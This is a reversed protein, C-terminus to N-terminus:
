CSIHDLRLRPSGARCVLEHKGAFDASLACGCFTFVFCDGGFVFPYVLVSM